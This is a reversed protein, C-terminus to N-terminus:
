KDLEAMFLLALSRALQNRPKPIGFYANDKNGHRPAFYNHFNKNSIRVDLMAWCCYPTGLFVKEAARIYKERKNM